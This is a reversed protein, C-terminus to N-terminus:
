QLTSSAERQLEFLTHPDGASIRGAWIWAYRSLLAGVLFCAAATYRGESTARGLVRLLLAIPGEMLGAILLAQGSRGHHLPADPSRNRALLVLEIMTEVGSAFFGLFQTAPILFGALELIGAASGLGSTLFHPPLLKRNVSWVPIATAGILVGTYSALLLGTLAAAAGALWLLWLSLPNLLGHWHLEFSLVALFVCNSFAVLIWTGMSMASRPKFVRLMNLFRTPRGLDSILLLPCIAAGVLAAWLSLRVLAPNAHFLQAVFAICSTMGAAGGLFFYLPVEWTWVPAKLAPLDYYSAQKLSQPSRVRSKLGGFVEGTKSAVERIEDLRAETPKRRAASKM